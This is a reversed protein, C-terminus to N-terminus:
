SDLGRRGRINTASLLYIPLTRYRVLRGLIAYKFLELRSSKGASIAAIWRSVYKRWYMQPQLTERRILEYFFLIDSTKKMERQMKKLYEPTLKTQSVLHQFKLNHLSILRWRLLSLAYCLEVDGGGTLSTGKRDVLLQKFGANKLEAFAKRPAVLGAGMLWGRSLTVDCTQISQAGIAYYQAYSFFFAPVENMQCEFIPTSAGGLIIREGFTNFAEDARILYDQALWNDDDCFVIIEGTAAGVGTWRANSLGPKLESVVRMLVPSGFSAWLIRATDGSRDTSCNDVVILEWNETDYDLKSLHRLTEPLREAANYACIVVSFRM